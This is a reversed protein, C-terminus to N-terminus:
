PPLLYTDVYLRDGTPSLQLGGPIKLNQSGCGGKQDSADSDRYANDLWKRRPGCFYNM